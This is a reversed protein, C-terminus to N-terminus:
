EQSFVDTQQSARHKIKRISPRIRERCNLKFKKNLLKKANVFLYLIFTSSIPLCSLIRAYFFWLQRVKRSKHRSSKLSEYQYEALNMSVDVDVILVPNISREILMLYSLKYLMNRSFLNVWLTINYITQIKGWLTRPDVTPFFSSM